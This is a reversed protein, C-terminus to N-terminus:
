IAPTVAIFLLACLLSGHHLRHPQYGALLYNKQLVLGSWQETVSTLCIIIQLILGIKSTFPLEPKLTQLLLFGMLKNIQCRVFSVAEM